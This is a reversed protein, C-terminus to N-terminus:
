PPFARLMIGDSPNCIHGQNSKPGPGSLLAVMQKYFQDNRDVYNHLLDPISIFNNAIDGSVDARGGLDFYYIPIPCTIM